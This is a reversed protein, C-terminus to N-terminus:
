KGGDVAPKASQTEPQAADDVKGTPSQAPDVVLLVPKRNEWQGIGERSVFEYCAYTEKEVSSNEEAFKLVVGLITKQAKARERLFSTVDFLKWGEEANMEFRAAPEAAFNPRKEWSTMESWDQLIEHMQLPVPKGSVKAERVYMALLFQLNSQSIEKPSPEKWALLTRVGGDNNAVAINDVNGHGWTPLYALTMCDKTIPLTEVIKGKVQKELEGNGPRTGEVVELVLDDFYAEGKGTLAARVTLKITEPPVALEKAQVLAWDHTGHIMPTSSFGIMKENPGWCQVCINATEADQTRLYGSLKVTKGTPINRINQAWNNSVTQGYDHENKIAFCAGGTRGRYNNRWIRLEDAKISARYWDLPTEEDKGAQEAGGNRLLNAPEDARGASIWTLMLLGTLALRASPTFYQM